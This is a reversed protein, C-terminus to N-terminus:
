CANDRACEAEVEAVIGAIASNYARETGPQHLNLARIVTSAVVMATRVEYGRIGQAYEPATIGGWVGPYRPVNLAAESWSAFVEERAIQLIQNFRVESVDPATPNLGFITNAREIMWRGLAILGPPWGPFETSPWLAPNYDTARFLFVHGMEHTAGDLNARLTLFVTQIGGPQGCSTGDQCAAIRLGLRQATDRGIYFIQVPWQTLTQPLNWPDIRQIVKWMARRLKEFTRAPMQGAETYVEFGPAVGVKQVRGTLTDDMQANGTIVEASVRAAVACTAALMAAAAIATARKM